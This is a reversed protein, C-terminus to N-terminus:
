GTPIFQHCCSQAFNDLGHGQGKHGKDQNLAAHLVEPDLAGTHGGGQFPLLVQQDVLQNKGANVQRPQGPYNRAPANVRFPRGIQQARRPRLLNDDKM